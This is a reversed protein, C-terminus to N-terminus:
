RYKESCKDKEINDPQRRTVQVQIYPNIVSKIQPREYHHKTFTWQISPHFSSHIGLHWKFKTSKRLYETTEEVWTSRKSAHAHAMSYVNKHKWLKKKWGM